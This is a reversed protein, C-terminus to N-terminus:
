QPAPRWPGAASRELPQAMPIVPGAEDGACRHVRVPKVALRDGIHLRHGAHEVLTAAQDGAPLRQGGTDGQEASEQAHVLGEWPRSIVSPSRCARRSRSRARVWRSSGCRNAVAQSSSVSVSSVGQFSSVTAVARRCGRGARLGRGCSQDHRLNPKGAPSAGPHRRQAGPHHGRGGGQRHGPRRGARRFRIMKSMRCPRSRRHSPLQPRPRECSGPALLCDPGRARLVM